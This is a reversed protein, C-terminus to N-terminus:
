DHHVWVNVVRDNLVLYRIHCVHAVKDHTTTPMSGILGCYHRPLHQIDVIVAWPQQCVMVLDHNTVPSLTGGRIWDPDSVGVFNRTVVM